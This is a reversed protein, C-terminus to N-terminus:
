LNCLLNESHFSNFSENKFETVYKDHEAIHEKSGRLGRTRITMKIRPDSGTRQDIRAAKKALEKLQALM